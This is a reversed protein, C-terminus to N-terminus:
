GAPRSPKGAIADAGSALDRLSRLGLPEKVYFPEGYAAGILSGFYADRKRVYELVAGATEGRNIYFQSRYCQIAAVKREYAASCDIVFSPQPVLFLHTAYYYIIRVPYHPECAMDTKTLKAQFRASELISTVALHDPHADEFYPVFIVTPKLRRIVEAAKRRSELTHEVYRNPLDLQVRTIGGLAKTAEATEAARVEPTGNPTPEGNTLDCIGVTCGQDLLAALTGGMGLEADDPHPAFCLYDLM